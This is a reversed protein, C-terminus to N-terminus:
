ITMHLCYGQQIIKARQWIKINMEITAMIMGLGTKKELVMPIQKHIYPQVIDMKQNQLKSQLM